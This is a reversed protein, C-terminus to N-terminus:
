LVFVQFIKHPQGGRDGVGGPPGIDVQYIHKKRWLAAYIGCGHYDIITRIPSLKHALAPTCIDSTRNVSTHMMM